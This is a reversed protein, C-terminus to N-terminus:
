CTTTNIPGSIGSRNFGLQRCAVVSDTVIDWNNGCITGYMKQYYIKLLGEGSSRGGVVKLDGDECDSLEEEGTTFKKHHLHLQFHKLSLAPRVHMITSQGLCTLVVDNAHLPCNYAASFQFACDALQQESGMCNTQEIVTPINHTPQLQM